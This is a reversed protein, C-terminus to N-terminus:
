ALVHSIAEADAAAKTVDADTLGSKREYVVIAAATDQPQFTHQQDLVRTAEASGPLWAANDNKEVGTLKGALPGAIAFIVVWLALVIWKTRRGCVM